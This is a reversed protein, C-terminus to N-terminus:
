HAIVMQSTTSLNLPGINILPFILNYTYDVQVVVTCGPYNDHPGFSTGDKATVAKVCVDPSGSPHTFSATVTAQSQNVSAPLSDLTHTQIEAPSAPGTNMGNSGNCSNDDTCQFGNVSAWRTGEKAANNLSHYVYLVHGFGSIGFLLTLFFILVFAYEVLTAGRQSKRSKTTTCCIM